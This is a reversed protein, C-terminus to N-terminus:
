RHVTIPFMFWMIVLLVVSIVAITSFFILSNGLGLDCRITNHLHQKRVINADVHAESNYPCRAVSAAARHPQSDYWVRVALPLSSRRRRGVGNNASVPHIDDMRLAKAASVCSLIRRTSPSEVKEEQITVWSGKERKMATELILKGPVSLLKGVGLQGPSNRLPTSASCPERAFSHTLANKARLSCVATSADIAVYTMARSPNMVASTLVLYQWSNEDPIVWNRDRVVRLLAGNSEILVEGFISGIYPLLEPHLLLSKTDNVLLLPAVGALRLPESKAPLKHPVWGPDRQLLAFLPPLYQSVFEEGSVEGADGPYKVILTAVDDSTELQEKFCLDNGMIISKLQSSVFSIVGVVVLVNTVTLARKVPQAPHYRSGFAYALSGFLVIMLGFVNRATLPTNFIM